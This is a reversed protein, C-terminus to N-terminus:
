QRTTGLYLMPITHRALSAAGPVSFASLFSPCFIPPTSTLFAPRCYVALQWFAPVAVLLNFKRITDFRDERQAEQPVYEHRALRTTFLILRKLLALLLEHQVVDKTQLEHTFMEGLLVKKQLAEADLNVFLHETTGFLFGM